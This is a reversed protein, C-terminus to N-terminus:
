PTPAKAPTSDAPKPDAPKREALQRLVVRNVWIYECISGISIAACAWAAISAYILHWEARIFWFAPFAMCTIIAVGQFWAKVKGSTRAALVLGRTATMARLAGAIIERVVMLLVPLWPMLGAGLVPQGDSWGVVHVAQGWLHTPDIVEARGIGEVVVQGVNAAGPASAILYGVGGIPLLYVLFITIRYLVDCFPDALKGFDSVEGRARAVRGDLWDTIEAFACLWGCVWFCWPVPVLLYGLVAFPALVLRALTIRDALTM